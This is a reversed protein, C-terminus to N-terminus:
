LVKGKNRQFHLSNAMLIGDLPPLELSGTYDEAIYHVTVGPFRSLMAREQEKLARRDVDVSYITGEPGIIDALALTFAGMGSGLEAWVGGTSIGGRLLALHDEHTM